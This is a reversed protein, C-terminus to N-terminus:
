VEECELGLGQGNAGTERLNPEGNIREREMQRDSRSWSLARQPISLGGHGPRVTVGFSLQSIM